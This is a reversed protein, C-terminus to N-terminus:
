ESYVREFYKGLLNTEVKQTRFLAFRSEYETIKKARLARSVEKSYRIGNYKMFGTEPPASRPKSKERRIQQESTLIGRFSKATDPTICGEEQLRNVLMSPTIKFKNALNKLQVTDIVKVDKLDEFPVLIGGAIRFVSRVLESKQNERKSNLAFKNIAVSVLMALLTFIQRGETELILPEEDGDRTNIFVYPFKKDKVCFGSVPLDRELRQPMYNYSSFSILIGSEEVQECLYKLARAKSFGRLKVLDLKFFNRIDTSIERHQNSTAFKKASSGAFINDATEPLLRNKLFEQKRSLDVAILRFDDLSGLGRTAVLFEERAPLKNLHSALESVQQEVVHEPAFFLPFPVKLKAAIKKLSSLAISDNTILDKFEASEHVPFVELLKFLAAKSIPVGKEHKIKVQIQGSM